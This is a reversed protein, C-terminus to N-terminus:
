LGMCSDYIAGHIAHQLNPHLDEGVEVQLAQVAELGEQYCDDQKNKELMQNSSTMSMM